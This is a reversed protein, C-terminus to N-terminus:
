QKDNYNAILKNIIQKEDLQIITNDFKNKVISYPAIDKKIITNAGILCMKGITISPYLMARVGLFTQECIKVDGSIVSTAGIFCHNEITSFHAILAGSKVFCNNGIMVNSEIIVNDSIWCNEGIKNTGQFIANPSIINAFNFGKNKLKLYLDKRDQNLRNWQVAVFIKFEEGNNKKNEIEDITYVPLNYFSESKKYEKDVAFGIINFLKNTNVIDYISIATTSTGIIILNKM